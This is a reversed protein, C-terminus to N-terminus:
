GAKINKLKNFNETAGKMAQGREEVTYRGGNVLFCFYIFELDNKSNCLTELGLSTEATILFPVNLDHLENGAKQIARSIDEQKSVVKKKSM